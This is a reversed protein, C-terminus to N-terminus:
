TEREGERESGLWFAKTRWEYTWDMSDADEKQLVVGIDGWIEEEDVLFIEM